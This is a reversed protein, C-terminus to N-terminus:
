SVDAMDQETEAFKIEKETLDSVQDLYPAAEEQIGSYTSTESYLPNHVEDDSFKALFDEQSNVSKSAIFLLFFCIVNRSLTRAAM